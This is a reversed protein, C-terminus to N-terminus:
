ACGPAPIKGLSTGTSSELVLKTSFPIWGCEGPFLLLWRIGPRLHQTQSSSVEGVAPMTESGGAAM